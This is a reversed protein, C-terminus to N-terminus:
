LEIGKQAKIGQDKFAHKVVKMETVTDALDILPQPADRGTAVVNVHAPRAELAAVVEDTDIWDWNMPYTIEDLILLGHDGAELLRLVLAWADRALEASKELDEADWSFGDGLVHWDVGLRRAITEEGSKWDGSKIFQIVAVDWGRALARLMTGFAATSKGKGDGTNVLLLSTPTSPDSPLAHETPPIADTM